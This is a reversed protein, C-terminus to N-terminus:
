SFPYSSHNWVEALHINPSAFTDLHVSHVEPSIKHFVLVLASINAFVAFYRNLCFWWASATKPRRWIFAVEQGFTLIHDFFLFATVHRTM